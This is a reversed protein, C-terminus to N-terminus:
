SPPAPALARQALEQGEAIVTAYGKADERGLALTDAYETGYAAIAHEILTLAEQETAYTGILNGTDIDMLTYIM